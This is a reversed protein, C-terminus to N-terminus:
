TGGAHIMVIMLLTQIWREPSPPIQRKMIWRSIQCKIKQIKSTKPYSKYKYTVTNKKGWTFDQKASTVYSIDGDPSQLVQVIVAFYSLPEIDWLTRLARKQTRVTLKNVTLVVCSMNESLLHQTSIKQNIHQKSSCERFMQWLIESAPTAM